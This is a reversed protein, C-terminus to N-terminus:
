SPTTESTDMLSRIEEDSAFYQRQLINRFSYAADEDIENDIFDEIVEHIQESERYLIALDRVQPDCGNMIALTTEWTCKDPTNLCSQCLACKRRNGPVHFNESCSCGNGYEYNLDYNQDRLKNELHDLVDVAYPRANDTDRQMFFSRTEMLAKMGVSMTIRDDPNQIKKRVDKDFVLKKVKNCIEKETEEDIPMAFDEPDIDEQDPRDQDDEPESESEAKDKKPLYPDPDPREYTIVIGPHDSKVAVDQTIKDTQNLWQKGLFIQMQVNGGMAAAYQARRLSVRGSSRYEEAVETFPKQYERQCFRAITKESVHFFGAIDEKTCQYSLLNEFETKPIDITKM